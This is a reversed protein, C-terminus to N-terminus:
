LCINKPILSEIPESQRKANGCATTDDEIKAASAAYIGKKVASLPM